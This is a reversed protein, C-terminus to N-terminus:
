NQINLQITPLIQNSSHYNKKKLSSSSLSSSQTSHPYISDQTNPTSEISEHQSHQSPIFQIQPSSSAECSSEFTSKPHVNLKSSEEVVVKGEKMEKGEKVEKLKRRKANNKKPVVVPMADIKAALAADKAGRQIHERKGYTRRKRRSQKTSENMERNNNDNNNNTLSNM